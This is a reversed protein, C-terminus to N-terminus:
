WQRQYYNQQYYDRGGGRRTAAYRSDNGFGGFFGGFFDGGAWGGRGLDNAPKRVALGGQPQNNLVVVFETRYNTERNLPEDSIVISSRASATPGVRDLVEQPITVRDLAAKAEDGGDITVATWRLGGDTRAVATFIHTGLPKDPNRITVPLDYGPEAGHRVYIRQTKRSIFLSVPELALKADRAAKATETRKAEAAKTASQAAAIADLKSKAEAKATDLQTKFEAAKAAAKQKQDEARTLNTNAAALVKDASALEADARTKLFELKHLSAALTAAERAAAPDPSAGAADAKPKADAKAADLQTGLEQAKAAAKQKFDEVKAQNARAGTLAKEAFALEADARTKLWEAKRLSM